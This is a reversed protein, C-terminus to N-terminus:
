TTPQSGVSYIFRFIYTTGSLSYNFTTVDGKKVPLYLSVVGNAPLTNGTEITSTLKAFEGTNGGKRFDFWGDAPATYSTGSAGLTLDIYKDSPMSASCAQLMNTKTALQEEIRGADILNANQVTEGVYFYLSGNGKAKQYTFKTVTGNQYYVGLQHGKPIFLTKGQWGASGTQTWAERVQTNDWLRCHTCNEVRITVFCNYDINYFSNGTPPMSQNIIEGTPLDESGDLLPLRFTEDTTNLVFDYDTYTETSLKVSLGEVTETGNQVKLLKDYADTYVAKANWQGESKLWSLNNLEHNSYKSDFLSYPNNLEIDNLNAHLKGDVVQITQNDVDLETLYKKYVYKDTEYVKKGLNGQVVFTANGLDIHELLTSDGSQLAEKSFKALTAYNNDAGVRIEGYFTKNATIDQATDTTVMNAPASGGGALLDHSTGDKKTFTLSNSGIDLHGGTTPKLTISDSSNLFGISSSASVNGMVLHCDQLGDENAYFRIGRRSPESGISINSGITIRNAGYISNYDVGLSIVGGANNAEMGIFGKPRSLAGTYEFAIADHQGFNSFIKKGTITQATDTTVMNTPTSGGVTINGEGLITEGNITKINTGSVLTNQKSTRLGSVDTKLGSVDTKIGSVDTKLTSVDGQVQAVKNDVTTIETNTKSSSWVSTTATTSDDITAGGGGGGVASITGDDTITITKGDPKVKGATTTTAIPIDGTGGGGTADIRVTGDSLNTLIINSGEVLTNQKGTKMASIDTENVTVRGTLDTVEGTLNNIVGTLSNVDGTLRNVDGTLSNVENGLEDLNAHLKGNIVQITQNDVDLETLYKKNETTQIDDSRLGNAKISVANVEGASTINVANLYQATAQNLNAVGDVTLAGGAINVKGTFTNDGTFRNNGAATVDGSGGGGKVSIKTKSTVEDQTITVNDTGAELMLPLMDAVNAPTVVTDASLNTLDADTSKRVGGVIETTAGDIEGTSVTGTTPNYRLYTGGNDTVGLNGILNPTEFENYENTIKLKYSNLTQESVSITPTFGTDGKDGKRGQIGQRNLYFNFDAM